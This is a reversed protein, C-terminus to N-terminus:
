SGDKVKKSKRKSKSKTKKPKNLNQIFALAVAVADASDYSEVAIKGKNKGKTVYRWPYEIDLHHAVLNPMDEKKPLDKELKLAHRISMVNLLEPPRGTENLIALGVTRNLVALSSVTAATSRGQMFLIIDELAVDDPKYKRLMEIIFNRVVALREFINGNKPPKFYDCLVFSKSDGYDDYDIISIGITTTSADLGM